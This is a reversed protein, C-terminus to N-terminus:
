ALVGYSTHTSKSRFHKSRFVHLTFPNMVCRIIQTGCVWVNVQVQDFAGLNEAEEMGAENAMKADLTGWYEM